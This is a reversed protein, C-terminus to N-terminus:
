RFLVESLALSKLENSINQNAFYSKKGIIVRQYRARTLAVNLRNPSDLFGVRFTQVMSIFTIDAERGQFKDITYLSIEVNDREFNQNRNKQNCYLRLEERLRREQGKYFTLCAVTWKKNTGKAWEVFQKLEKMLAKVEEINFNRITKGEVDIWINRAPYRDYNWSREILVKSSDKLAENNYFESRPFKSIENHMRHQYDLVVHRKQRDQQNFGSNLVSNFKFERKTPVGRQLSELTSPLAISHVVDIKSMVEERNISPVLLEIDKDHNVLKKNSLRLDYKRIIRWAVEDAWKKSQLFENTNKIINGVGTIIKNRDRIEINKASNEYYASAKFYEKSDNWDKIGLHIKNSPIYEVVQDYINSDIFILSLGSIIWSNPNGNIIDEPRIVFFDDGEDENVNAKSDIIFGLYKSKEKYKSPNNKVRERLEMIISKIEEQIVKIVMFDNNNKELFEKEFFKFLLLSAQQEHSRFIVEKNKGNDIVFDSLNAVIHERDTFPSLQKIDGVLIWKKAYLAPVLFEQFTTKSSEDIILYDFETSIPDDMDKKFLPHQLIGITTGCVLNASDLIIQEFRKIDDSIINKITYASASNSVNNSDGIRIPLIDHFLKGETDKLRELVNDIAVHTSASLLIRKKRKILQIILEVIATTKGSGPPGELLMFDPTGIAGKVFERQTLTGDRSEDTLVHWEDIEGYNFDPWTNIEEKREVLSILGKHELLPTFKINQIARRQKELQYTNIPLFLRQPLDEIRITKNWESSKIELTNEERNKREIKFEKYEGRRGRPMGNDVTTVGDEFFYDVKSFSAVMDDEDNEDDLIRVLVSNKNRKNRTIVIEFDIGNEDKVIISKNLEIDSNYAIKLQGQDENILYSSNKYLISKPKNIKIMKHNIKIGDIFLETNEDVRDKCVIINIRRDVIDIKKGNKYTIDSLTSHDLFYYETIPIDCVTIPEDTNLDGKFSINILDNNENISLPIFNNNDNQKISDLTINKILVEKLNIAYNGNLLTMMRDKSLEIDLYVYYTLEDLKIFREKSVEFNNVGTLTAISIKNKDLLEINNVQCTLLYINRPVKMQIVTNLEYKFSTVLCNINSIIAEDAEEWAVSVRKEKQTQIAIDLYEKFMNFNPHAANYVANAKGERKYIANYYLLSM